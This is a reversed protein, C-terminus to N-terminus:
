LKLVQEGAHLEHQEGQWIFRGTTGEPLTLRATLRGRKDIKYDASVTGAPHPISGSVQKLGCLSPAIRIRGFGPADSDIGLIIRFFEINPSSGWAHCDSRSPEPTEAWTTLGLAMQDRWIQLNDLLLDGLGARALARHLYYRFYITTQILSNDELTRTMVERAEDGTVIDTLVAMANVHQSFSRHDHTDAFLGREADWYKTRITGRIKAAIDAYHEAQTRSGFAQEMRVSADLAMLYILDQFASNGEKERVPDGGYFEAAWDAFFWYPVSALSYDSKLLGEYWSLIGRHAPLLSRLWADEGRYTWYDHGMCIWWLSFSPILQYPDSPYRSMTIGEAVISQRGQEIANRVLKDDRTNYLSVLAQIRTDGFYQLQEYYPCDMYTEHACLRATRWGIDLIRKLDDHGPAEFTSERRFPYASFTAHLDEIVLPESKTEVTLEVFRWTRWWLPTFSRDAGGDAIIRDAYGSFHKGETENRSGKALGKGGPQEFLAEAYAITMEAGKGGAFRLNLYGTTLSDNDLLLTVRNGAPITLPAKGDTFGAPVEIGEAKRVRKFREPRMEMPPIPRPVLRRGSSRRHDKGTAWDNAWAKKWGSDDYDPLEWGWPYKSADLRECPGAAYYVGSAALTLPAYSDNRCCLWSGDTNVAAEAATNGQLLFGTRGFSIQAEPKLRAFNWVVAALVNRGPKLYPALDVTEYNWNYIDGRAPGLSVFQGNAYLKYRNDASVHVIFREPLTELDFAKRMHYVGFGDLPEGPVSIWRATWAGAILEPHIDAQRDGELRIQATLPLCTLSLLLMLLTRNKM